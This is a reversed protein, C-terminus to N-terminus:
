TTNRKSRKGYKKTPFIPPSSVPLARKDQFLIKNVRDKLVDSVNKNPRYVVDGSEEFINMQTMKEFLGSFIIRLRSSYWGM